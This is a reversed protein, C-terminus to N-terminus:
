KEAPEAAELLTWCIHRPGNEKNFYYVVLIRGDPRLVAWPYGVDGSGGDDRLVFEPATSVDSCDANLLRARIGYPPQRYGYVLFVRGDKLRLAQYPEGTFGDDQWAGFTKGGDTSRAWVGRGGFDATRMFAIIDGSHTSILSTENFTIAPDSAVPCRYKWTRGCDHSEMLHVSSRRPKLSDTRVVAWLLTGGQLQLMQGRNFTPAPKGLANVTTEAPLAPPEIPGQWTHGGDTSRLLYGGIFAYPPYALCEPPAACGSPLLVWGYSSCVLSGDKLQNLCPDQSGGFPHAFMLEPDKSWTKGGDHSRVLALYSNADTHTFDKAGWLAKRSPARRFACIIEGDPRVVASPFACYFRSDSYVVGDAVKKLMSGEPASDARVGATLTLAATVALVALQVRM